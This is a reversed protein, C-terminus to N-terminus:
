SLRTHEVNMAILKLGERMVRKMDIAREKELEADLKHRLAAIKLADGERIADILQEDLIGIMKSM